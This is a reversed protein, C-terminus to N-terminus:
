ALTTVYERWDEFLELDDVVERHTRAILHLGQNVKGLIGTSPNGTLAAIQDAVQQSEEANLDLLENLANRGNKVVDKVDGAVSFLAGADTIQFGDALAGGITKATNIIGACVMVLMEIGLKNKTTM